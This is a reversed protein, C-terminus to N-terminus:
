ALLPALRTAHGRLLDILDTNPEAVRHAPGSLALGAILTGDSPSRV